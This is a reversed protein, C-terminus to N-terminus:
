YINLIKKSVQKGNRCNTVPLFYLYQYNKLDLTKVSPYSFNISSPLSFSLVSTLKGSFHTQNDKTLSQDGAKLLLSLNIWLVSRKKPNAKRMQM